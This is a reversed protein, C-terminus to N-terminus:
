GPSEVHHTRRPRPEPSFIAYPLDGNTVIFVQISILIHPEPIFGDYDHYIKKNAALGNFGSQSCAIAFYNSVLLISRQTEFVPLIKMLVHLARAYLTTLMTCEKLGLNRHTNLMQLMYPRIQINKGHAWVSELEYQIKYINRIKYSM